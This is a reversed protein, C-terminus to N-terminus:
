EDLASIRDWLRRARSKVTSDAATHDNTEIWELMARQVDAQSKPQFDGSYLSVAIAAWMDDWFEAPPRGGKKKVKSPPTQPSASSSITSSAQVAQSPKTFTFRYLELKSKVLSRSKEFMQMASHTASDNRLDHPHRGAAINLTLPLESGLYGWFDTFAGSIDAFADTDQAVPSVKEIISSVLASGVEEMLRIVARITSGSQLCGKASHDAYIAGRREEFDRKALETQYELIKQIQARAPIM